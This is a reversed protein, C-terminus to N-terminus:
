LYKNHLRHVLPFLLHVHSHWNLSLLMFALPFFKFLCCKQKLDFHLFTCPATSYCQSSTLYIVFDYSKNFGDSFQPTDIFWFAIFHLSHCNLRSLFFHGYSINNRASCCSSCSVEYFAAACTFVKEHACVIQYSLDSDQPTEAVAHTGDM